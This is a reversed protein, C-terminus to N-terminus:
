RRRRVTFVLGAAMSAIITVLIAILPYNLPLDNVINIGNATIRGTPSLLPLELAFQQTAQITALDEAAVTIVAVAGAGGGRNEFTVTITRTSNAEVTLNHITVALTGTEPSVFRVVWGRAALEGANPLALGVTERANGTNRVTVTYNLYLGDFTPSSTSFDLGISRRRLIDVLVKVDGATSGDKAGTARIAVDGHDVLADPPTRITVRVTTADNGTQGFNLSVRPQSFTFTWSAPSGSFVFEDAVNGTNQVVLTYTVSGGGPIATREGSDWLFTVQREDERVLDLNLPSSTGDAEFTTDKSYRVGVGSEMATTEGTVAYLGPPLVIRYTGTADSRTHASAAATFTIDASVRDNSRSSTVGTVLFSPVLVPNLALDRGQPVTVVGLFARTGSSGVVYLDYAGPHIQLGFTGDAGATASANIGGPSRATFTLSAATGVNGFAVRGSVTSNDLSRSAAIDFTAASTNAAISLSGSFTLRVFRVVGDIPMTTDADVAVAYDGEILDVSYTGTATSTTRLLGGQARTFTITAPDSMPIGLVRATGTVLTTRALPMTLNLAGSVTLDDLFLYPVGSQIVNATVAYDGLALYTRFQGDTVPAVVTDLGEFAITGNVAQSSITVTGTVRGRQVVQLDHQATAVGVDVAIQEAAFTQWRVADSGTTVNEDVQVEYEGPAISVSYLGQADVTTEVGVAGSGLPALRIKFSAGLVPDGAQRVTGSLTVNTATIAIEDDLGINAPLGPGRQLTSYGPAAITVSYTANADLPADFGGADDTFITLVRGQADSISIRIAAAGEGPDAAGNGNLDRFVTAHHSQRRTLTLDLTTSATFTRRELFADGQVVAHIDYTGRPLYAVYSGTTSTLTRYLNGTLSRFVVPAAQAAAATSGLRVQGRVEVGDVFAPNYTANQARLVTITQLISLLRTERYHRGAVTWAGAPLRISYRGGADSTVSATVSPDSLLTLQFTTFAQINGGVFTTGTLNGSPYLTLDAGSVPVGALLSLNAPLSVRDGLVAHIEYEARLLGGLTFDGDADTTATWTTDNAPDRVVVTAFPVGIANPDEVRGAAQLAPVALNKTLEEVGIEQVGLDQTRGDITVNFRTTGEPFDQIEFRGAPDSVITGRLETLGHVYRITASPLLRDVGDTLVRDGDIDLFVRGKITHGALVINRTILWDPIGDGDSDVNERMAAEDTVTFTQTQLINAATRTRTNLAGSSVILKVEGFPALVSFRGNEDTIAEYHPVGLEDQVTVLLRSVPVRGNVTVTGNVYAGDYYKAFVIGSSVYAATSLDVVGVARGADIEAKLKLGDFYNMARYETTHNQPDVYPNYYATRYVVRWHSLNWAPLPELLIANQGSIGPIGDDESAGAETPRFGIYVRYFFSRYFLDRFLIQGQASDPQDFEGLEEIPTLQGRVRVYIRYFDTPIVRGDLAERVRHDSLKAPAYFIGTNEAGVPFLRADVAFYRISNGTAQRIARYLDAQRDTNLESTLLDAAYIYLANTPQILDDYYGYRQPDGRIAPIRAAPNRYTEELAAVDIGFGSVASRVQPGFSRGHAYFDAEILRLSLLAIAENESQATIVNGALHYGNQFNDAVTPHRGKDAAEFGYDWWSLFAPREEPALNADQQSLWSWAAPFYEKAEPLNFGFAGLYFPAQGQTMQEYNPPRLPGPTLEYIQRDYEFKREIPIAADVGYWVNPLFLLLVLILAGIAHRPKVSKRIAAVRGGPALSSYTRKMGDFDLRDIVLGLAYGATAAFAPSANFIFRGAAQAMIIAAVSWVVFFLYATQTRRGAVVQWLLYGLAGWSLFYTGWGFSLIIQSLAPAQAEAITEYLKTQVFYGAGSLFANALGPNVLIGVGLVISSVGLTGPIVLAWPYDRTATFVIGLAIAAGFLYAPVDFWVKVQNLAVYWPAAVLLAVGMTITFAITIGLPDRNRIRHFFLQFIFYVLLIIPAYAWGQWTLAVTAISIAALLSYLVATRNERFFLALGARIAAPRRWSEVWRKENLSELARLFFFYATVVFFLVFSDHDANSAMSRQLHAPSVALLFAAILAARRNFAERVLAYTPFITLAGFLGTSLIFSFTIADWPSAFAPSILYGSLLSWWAFLPPRPNTLCMPYNLLCDDTLQDGTLFANELIRHYYFSDSGGSVLRDPVALGYVFYVRLFLALGFILLLAVITSANRKWWVDRLAV